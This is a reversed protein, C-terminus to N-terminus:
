HTKERGDWKAKMELLRPLCADFADILRPDFHVGAQQRMNKLIRELPWASKYPREMSLADFVDAIAVIRASEPIKAGSLGDPYGSGDWKEHHRLAIEAAMHFLPAHSQILIDHGIVTHTKMIEWEEPDLSGSKKLISDPIGIKGMDHMPAALELLNASAPNWGIQEALARCYAAMRWIHAGTDTDNYHGAQGLMYVAERYSNELDATRVLSVHTRIRARVSHPSIPKSLFDVCGAEFGLEESEIDNKGTVFIVPIKATTPDAKLRRCVEYGDMEPMNIDLLILSPHNKAASALAESGRQAFSLEYETSLIQGMLTLNLPDDDVILLKCYPM